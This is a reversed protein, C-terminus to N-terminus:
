SDSEGPLLSVPAKPFRMRYSWKENLAELGLRLAYQLELDLEPGLAIFWDNYIYIAKDLTM